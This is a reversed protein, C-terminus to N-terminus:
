LFRRIWNQFENYDNYIPADEDSDARLFGVVKGKSIMAVSPYYEVYNHLSTEKEVEFMMRYVKIKHDRAYSSVYERLRDATTCGGQDIFVIFSKKKSILDEYEKGTLDQLEGDCEQQCIYEPDLSLKSDDFWGSVAGMFLLSSILVIVLAIILGLVGAQKKKEASM